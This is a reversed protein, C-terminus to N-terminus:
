RVNTATRQQAIEAEIMDDVEDETLGLFEAVPGRAKHWEKDRGIGVAEAAVVDAMAILSVLHPVQPPLTTEEFVTVYDHHHNITLAVPEALGWRRALFFGVM